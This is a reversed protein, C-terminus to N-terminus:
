IVGNALTYNGIDDTHWLTIGNNFISKLDNLDEVNFNGTIVCDQTQIYNWSQRTHLNPDKVENLAYGYMNFFNTLKKIYEDKIQKKIIFVGNYQNGITYSTNSGMKAISPPINAIDKQKAQMQKLKLIGDGAGSIIGTVSGAVGMANGMMASAVGGVINGTMGMAQHFEITNKQNILSNRNGQIFASLNDTIIPLDNPENNILAFEDSVFDRFSTNSDAYNYDVIGYSTKNSLGLSGKVTIFLNFNNIYENKFVARNGKFDDLILQTYPAMLLKSETVTKYSDYKPEILTDQSEFHMVKGVYLCNFFNSGGDSIQAGTVINGNNTITITAPNGNTVTMPIGTYDTIYLSVINNVAGSQKYLNTLVDTPKSLVVGNGTTDILTPVTDNDFFPLIYVTLPQVTGIVTPTITNATSGQHMPTKAVIVLWKYGNNPSFENVYVTDYETGYHLGEEQTNIVPSGDTNWLPCHERVVYSPKILMEFKWTQLVDIEFYVYTCNSNKYELKTVFAYFWKRSIKYNNFMMYNVGYLEDISKDVRVYSRGDDSRQFTNQPM